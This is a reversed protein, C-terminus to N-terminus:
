PNRKHFFRIVGLHCRLLDLNPFEEKHKDDMHVLVQFEDESGYPFGDKGCMHLCRKEQVTKM